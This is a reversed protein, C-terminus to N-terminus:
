LRCQISTDSSEAFLPFVCPDCRHQKDSSIQYIGQTSMSPPRETTISRLRDGLKMVSSRNSDHIKSTDTAHDGNAQQEVTAAPAKMQRLVDSLKRRIRKTKSTSEDMPRNDSSTSMRTELVFNRPQTTKHVISCPISTFAWADRPLLLAVSLLLMATSHIVCRFCGHHSRRRGSLPLSTRDVSSKMREVKLNSEERFLEDSLTNVTSSNGQNNADQLM